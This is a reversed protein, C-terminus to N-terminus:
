SVKSSGSKSANETELEYNFENQNLVLNRIIEVETIM